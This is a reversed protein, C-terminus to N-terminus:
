GPPADRPSVPARDVPSAAHTTLHDGVGHHPHLVDVPRVPPPGRGDVRQAPHGELHGAAFEDGELSTGAGTLGCQQVDDAAEVGGVPAPDLDVPEAEALQALALQQPQAPVPDAEDELGEPEDGDETGRLVDAHRQPQAAGVRALALFPDFQQEGEHSEGAVRGLPGALQGAALLLPDGDGPGQGVAGARSM